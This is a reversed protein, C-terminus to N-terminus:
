RASLHQSFFRLVQSEFVSAFASDGITPSNSFMSGSYKTFAAALLVRLSSRMFM